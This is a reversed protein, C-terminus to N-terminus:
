LRLAGSNLGHRACAPFGFSSELAARWKWRPTGFLQAETRAHQAHAVEFRRATHGGWFRRQRYYKHTLRIAPVWHRIRLEPIFWGNFGARLLRLQMEIDECGLSKMGEGRGWAVEFPGVRELAARRIACNGGWMLATEQDLRQRPTGEPHRAIVTTTHRPPLWSPPATEFEPLYLGGVFDFELAREERQFVEIWDPLVVEDDDFFAIWEGRGAGIGRNLAYSKGATPEVIYSVPFPASAAFHGVVAPTEDTCANGVVLLHVQVGHPVRLAALSELTRPLLRARNHTAVVVDLLFEPKDKM